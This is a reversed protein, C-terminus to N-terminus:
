RKPPCGEETDTSADIEEDLYFGILYEKPDPFDIDEVGIANM